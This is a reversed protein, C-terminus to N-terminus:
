VYLKVYKKFKNGRDEFNKYQDYSAASPSLLITAKKDLKKAERISKKVASSLNKILSYEVNKLFKKFFNAHEGIIFIKHIKNRLKGLEIKDNKKPLGGLIWFINDYKQLAFKTAEFSTAKSDNIITLNKKKYILEQRHELGKFSNMASFFKQDKIKFKKAISYVFSMNEFNTRSNLYYNSIKNEFKLFNKKILILKSKIKKKKFKLILKKSNLLAYDKSSQNSFIKFKANQYNKKTKHWDLHDSSINLIIAFNPIVFKSYELQFSSAEIIYVLKKFIKCSLIPKGINGGTITKIGVKKFLHEIMKCTTSKGNTGTIMITKMKIKKNLLYFLDLDSIIKKKNKLLNIKFPSNKLRIGPSIVIFDSKDIFKKVHPTKKTKDDWSFYDKFKNKRLFNIVSKGTLGLGYIGIKKLKLDRLSDM